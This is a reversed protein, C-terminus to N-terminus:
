PLFLVVEYLGTEVQLNRRRVVCFKDKVELSIKVCVCHILIDNSYCKFITSRFLRYHYSKKTNTYIPRIMYLINKCPKALHNKKYYIAKNKNIPTKGLTQKVHTIPSTFILCHVSVCTRNM